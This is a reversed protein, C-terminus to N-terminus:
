PLEGLLRAVLAWLCQFASSMFAIVTLLVLPATPAVVRMGLLAMTGTGLAVLVVVLLAGPWAGALDPGSPACHSAVCICLYIQLPLWWTRHAWVVRSLKIVVAWADRGVLRLDSVDRIALAPVDFIRSLTAPGVMWALVAALAAAGAILPAIGIMFNGILQWPTRKAYAHRVYGLTGTSPDPEFFAIGVIRHGFLKASVLHALEHLPVGLWGTVLVGNWGLHHSVVRGSAREVVHLLAALAAIGVLLIGLQTFDHIVLQQM